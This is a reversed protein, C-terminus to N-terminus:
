KPSKLNSFVTTQLKCHCISIKNRCKMWKSSGALRLPKKYDCTQKCLSNKTWRNSQNWSFNHSHHVPWTGHLHLGHHLFFYLPLLPYMRSTPTPTADTDHFCHWTFIVWKVICVNLLLPKKESLVSRSMNNKSCSDVVSTAPIGLELNLFPSIFM